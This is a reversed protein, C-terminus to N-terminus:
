FGEPHMSSLSPQPPHLTCWQPRPACDQQLLLSAQRKSSPFEGLVAFGDQVPVLDLGVLNGLHPSEQAPLIITAFPIMAMMCFPKLKLLGMLM